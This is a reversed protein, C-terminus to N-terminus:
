ASAPGLARAIAEALMDGTVPKRVFDDFGAQRALPEAEADTRATLAILPTTVGQLRLQRALAMGDLGPLDLDLFAVDFETSVVEALAALGHPAHTVRHGRARLLGTVVDAVTADDEVLLIELSGIQVTPQVSEPAPVAHVADGALAHLAPLDVSFRTGRGPASDVDIRGGMALALEQCIALGLGSGGYRATTQAGEAQEFRRFLRAQQEANIGPGTDGVVLRVGQPVLPMAHLSVHGTETFKIANGLLNLLIQRLRLPDGRVMHPVGATVGDQFALGRKGAVPGMLAVVDAILAHLDFEVQQLELKGAEIKALDLADNVLRLLHTGARQIADAYGKQREDLPTAQLLETMGLVGTMPTRIEHGLTALFRTKALSAQEALERKHEALQWASRRRVRRRYAAAIALLVLVGVVAFLVLGWTSRWWPPLMHVQLVLERSANGAADFAQVRLRYRGPTLASFVREGTAGQDVWGSDFGELLSRYRNGLPNEYSLLRTGVLLEHDDPQLELREDLRLPLVGDGRSVQLSDLVLNPTVPKPDPLHTDLLAVSGDAATTALLGDVTMLLGRDNLEQSLLGERVGFNRLLARSGSLNPDIRFLGRRTGLWVRRQPDVALGTSEVAPLGDAAGIRRERSWRGDARRWAEVGSMRHLWLRDAHEFAFAYVREGGMAGVAVFRGAVADWVMMGAAGGLWVRGDPAVALGEIDPLGSGDEQKVITRLVRGSVADRQQVSGMQTVLWLTDDRAEVLWDISTNDPVADDGDHGWQVLAGTKPDTRILGNRHGIWLQGRRDERVSTLRLEGLLAAHHPLPAVHGGRTDLREVKGTSSAVWLGDAGAQSLGRYLGGGLGQASSFAAIRRWDSRLYALGRTPVPVWLGGDPLALVTQLVRGIGVSQTDYNVPAPAHDGETRWLGGQSALWYEGQGDSTMAILANPRAFMPSWPPSMWGGEPSWRHVGDSAGVWVTNADATVSYIILGDGGPLALRRLQGGEYRALGGMTGIWLVGKADFALSLVNDSPLGDTGETAAAFRTIRADAALRHLGGGFTGFWVDDGRSAIAFVDDSGMGPHDAKRYHRFGRRDVDMMSLGGSETGVWIRDAADIHLAQVVNGPLSTPDAPDHRWVKFGVGDYRALGDWTAVWLHGARDRALAPITTSPLGDGAGLLRFRPIEPVAAPAPACLLCFLLLWWARM